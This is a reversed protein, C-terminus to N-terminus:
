KQERSERVKQDYETRAGRGEACAYVADVLVNPLERLTPLTGHELAPALRLADILFPHSLAARPCTPPAEWGTMRQIAALALRQERGLEVPECDGFRCGWAERALAVQSRMMEAAEPDPEREAKNALDCGCPARTMASDFHESGLWAAARADHM